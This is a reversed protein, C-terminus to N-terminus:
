LNVGNKLFLSVLWFVSMSFLSITLLLSTIVPPHTLYTFPVLLVSGQHASVLTYLRQIVINYASM